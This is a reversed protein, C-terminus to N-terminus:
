PKDESDRGAVWEATGDFIAHCDPCMIRGDCLIWAEGNDCAPCSWYEPSVWTIV